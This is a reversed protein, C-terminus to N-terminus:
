HLDKKSEVEVSSRHGNGRTTINERHLLRPNRDQPSGRWMAPYTTESTESSRTANKTARGGELTFAVREKSVDPVM